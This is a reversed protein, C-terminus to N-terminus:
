YNQQKISRRWVGYAWKSGEQLNRCYYVNAHFVGHSDHLLLQVLFLHWLQTVPSDRGLSEQCAAFWLGAWAHGQVLLM